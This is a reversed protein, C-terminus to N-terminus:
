NKDGESNGRYGLVAGAIDFQIVIAGDDSRAVGAASVAKKTSKLHPLPLLLSVAVNVPHHYRLHTFLGISIIAGAKTARNGDRIRSGKCLLSGFRWYQRESM